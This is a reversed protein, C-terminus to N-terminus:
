FPGGPDTALGFPPSSSGLGNSITNVLSGAEYTFEYVSGNLADSVYVHKEDHRLALGLPDGANPTAWQFSTTATPLEWIGTWPGLQDNATLDNNLPFEIGGPFAFTINTPHAHGTGNKYKVMAGAGTTADIYNVYLHNNHSMGDFLVKANNPVVLTNTPNTSGPAYVSVSGPGGATDFINTAYATGDVGVVIDVPYQGSDNLTKYANLQGKKFVLINNAGTNAVWVDGNPTTWMGQPNVVGNTITAIPSQNSGVQDYIQVDNSYFQSAYLLNGSNKKPSMWAKVPAPNPHILAQISPAVMSPVAVKFAHALPQSGTPVLSSTAGSSGVGSCGALLLAAAAGLAYLPTPIRM